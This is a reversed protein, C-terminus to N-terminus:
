ASPIGASTILFWMDVTDAPSSAVIRSHNALLSSSAGCVATSVESLTSMSLTRSVLGLRALARLASSGSSSPWSSPGVREAVATASGGAPSVAVGGAGAAGAGAGAGASSGSRAAAGAGVGTCAAGAGTCGAGAVVVAGGGGGGAFFTASTGAGLSSSLPSGAAAGFGAGIFTGVRGFTIVGAPGRRSSMVLSFIM